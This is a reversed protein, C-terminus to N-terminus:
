KQPSVAFILDATKFEDGQKEKFFKLWVLLFYRGTEREFRYEGVKKDVTKEKGEEDKEKVRRIMLGSMLIKRHEKEEHDKWATVKKVMSKAYCDNDIVIRYESYERNTVTLLASNVIRYSNYGYTKNLAALSKKLEDDFDGDYEIRDREEEDDGYVIIEARISKFSVPVAIKKKEEDEARLNGSSHGTGFMLAVGLFVTLLKGAERM